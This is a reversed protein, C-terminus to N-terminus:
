LGAGMGIGLEGGTRVGLGWGKSVGRVCGGPLLYPGVAHLKVIM